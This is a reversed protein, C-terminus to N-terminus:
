CQILLPHGKIACKTGDTALESQGTVVSKVVDAAFSPANFEIALGKVAGCSLHEQEEEM